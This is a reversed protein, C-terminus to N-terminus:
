CCSSATACCWACRSGPRRACCRRCPAAGPAHLTPLPHPRDGACSRAPSTSSSTRSRAGAWPLGEPMVDRAACWATLDALLRPDVQGQVVYRGPSVEDVRSAGPLAAALGAVDLGAAARFSLTGQAGAASSSARAEWRSWGATTSSWSRTPWASPRTWSTRRSCSPSATAACTRSWSGPPGAPRRTSGPRRSTSSCSSRGASSPWPSRSGSSSAARCAATPRHRGGRRARAARRPRRVDLPHAHLSAVHRLMEVAKVGPYVGGAQLMVGVRPRLARADRWPDLGLVRVRGADPRRYGECTEVTTTKGAGNPGLVATIGGAPVVASLGDVASRGGYRKVLDVVEVAHPESMAPLRRVGGPRTLCGVHPTALAASAIPQSYRWVSTTFDM